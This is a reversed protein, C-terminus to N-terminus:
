DDCCSANTDSAHWEEIPTGLVGPNPISNLEQQVNNSYKSKEDEVQSTFWNKQGFMSSLTVAPNTFFEWLIFVAMGGLFIYALM